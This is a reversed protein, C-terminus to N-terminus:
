IRIYSRERASRVWKLISLVSGVISIVALGILFYVVEPREMFKLIQRGFEKALIALALFRVLRGAGVASLVHWRPTQLGSAAMLFVTFPFPPPLLSALGLAWWAHKELRARVVKLRGPNVMKEIGTEGLKRSVADTLTAGIVSGTAAMLAYYWFLHEKRATLVVLLLDNGLPVFLFSSDLIGFGLLGFGGLQAFFAFIPKVFDPVSSSSKRAGRPLNKTLWRM